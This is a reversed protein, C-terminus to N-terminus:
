ACIAYEIPSDWIHLRKLEICGSFPFCEGMASGSNVHPNQILRVRAHFGKALSWGVFSSAFHMWFEFYILYNSKSGCLEFWPKPEIFIEDNM